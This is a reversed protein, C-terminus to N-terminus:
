GLEPAASTELSLTPCEPQRHFLSKWWSQQPQQAMRALHAMKAEQILEAQRSRSLEWQQQAHLLHM